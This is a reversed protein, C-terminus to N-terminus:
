SRLYDYTISKNKWWLRFYKQILGFNLLRLNTRMEYLLRKSFAEQEELNKNLYFIKECVKYTSHQHNSHVTFQKTSLSKELVRKKVLPEDSYSFNTIRSSRVIFDFDEYSLTEDYGNLTDLLSKRFMMSPSCIFYREITEKYIDGQPITYHPFRYSHYSLHNGRADILEADSFHVGISPKSKIFIEVGEEIRNSFLVDDAALDILYEGKAKQLALNFARCNGVNTELDIFDISTKDKLFSRIVEKSGDVSADDVVILQVLKYTQHLVSELAEMVYDKQNHCLCIVTVLPTGM